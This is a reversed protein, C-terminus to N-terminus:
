DTKGAEEGLDKSEKNVDTNVKETVDEEKAPEAM